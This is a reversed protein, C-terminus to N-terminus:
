MCDCTYFESDDEEVYNKLRVSEPEAILTVEDLNTPFNVVVESIIRHALAHIHIGHCQTHTHTHTYSSM